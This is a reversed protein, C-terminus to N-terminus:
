EKGQIINRRKFNMKDLILIDVRAKKHNNNAHGEM